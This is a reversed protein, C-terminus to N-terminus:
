RLVGELFGHLYALLAYLNKQKILQISYYPLRILLQGFYAPIIRWGHVYKKIFIIPNRAFYYAKQSTLNNTEANNMSGSVAHQMLAKNVLMCTYQNQIVRRCFDVDEFYMFYDEPLLGAYKFVEAKVMMCAGTIFDTSKCLTDFTDSTDFTNIMKNMNPHRTYCFLKNFYGGAFWIKDPENLYTIIPGVIGANTNHRLVDSCERLLNEDVITDPNLLLVYDVCRKLFYNIGINNGAAYGSNYKNQIVFINNTKKKYKPLKKHAGRISVHFDDSLYEMTKDTSANDIILIEYNIYTSKLVSSVCSRIYKESNYTLIIIGISPYSM